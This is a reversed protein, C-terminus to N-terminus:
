QPNNTKPNGQSPQALGQNKSNKGRFTWFGWSLLLVAAIIYGLFSIIELYTMVAILAALFFLLMKLM